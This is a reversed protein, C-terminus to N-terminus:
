NGGDLQSIETELDEIFQNWRFHKNLHGNGLNNTISLVRCFCSLFEEFVQRNELHLLTFYLRVLVVVRRDRLYNHCLNQWGRCSVPLSEFSNALCKEYDRLSHTSPPRFWAPLLRPVSARRRAIRAADGRKPPVLQQAPRFQLLRRRYLKEFHWSPTHERMRRTV